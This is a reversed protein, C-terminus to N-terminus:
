DPLFPMQDQHAPQQQGAEHLTSLTSSSNQRHDPPAGDETSAVEAGDEGTVAAAPSAVGDSAAMWSTTCSSTRAARLLDPPGLEETSPPRKGQMEVLHPDEREEASGGTSGLSAALFLDPVYTGFFSISTSLM